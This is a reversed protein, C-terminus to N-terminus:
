DMDCNMNVRKLYLMVIDYYDCDVQGKGTGVDAQEGVATWELTVTFLVQDYERVILDKIRDPPYNKGGPGEYIICLNQMLSMLWVSKGPVYSVVQFTQGLASRIFKGTSKLGSKNEESGGIGIIAETNTATNEDGEITAQFLAFWNDHAGDINIALGV